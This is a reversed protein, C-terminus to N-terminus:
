FEVPFGKRFNQIETQLLDVATKNIAFEIQINTRYAREMREFFRVTQPRSGNNKMAQVQLLSQSWENFKPSIWNERKGRLSLQAAVLQSGSGLIKGVAEVINELSVPERIIISIIRPIKGTGRKGNKCRVNIRENSKLFRGTGRNRTIVKTLGRSLHGEM